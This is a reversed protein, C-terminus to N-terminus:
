EWHCHRELNQMSGQNALNRAKTSTTGVGKGGTTTVIAKDDKVKSRKKTRSKAFISRPSAEAFSTTSRQSTGGDSWRRAADRKRKEPGAKGVVQTRQNLTPDSKWWKTFHLRWHDKVTTLVATEEFCNRLRTWFAEYKVIGLKACEGHIIPRTYTRERGWQWDALHPASLIITASQCAM